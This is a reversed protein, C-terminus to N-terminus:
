IIMLYHKKGLVMGTGDSLIKGGYTDLLLYSYSNGFVLILCGILFMSRLLFRLVQYALYAEHQLYYFYM